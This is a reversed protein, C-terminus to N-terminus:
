EPQFLLFDPKPQTHSVYKLIFKPSPGFATLAPGPSIGFNRGTCVELALTVVVGAM